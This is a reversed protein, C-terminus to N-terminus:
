ENARHMLYKAPRTPNGRYPEPMMPDPAIYEVSGNPSSYRFGGDTNSRAPPETDVPCAPKQESSTAPLIAECMRDVEEWVRVDVWYGTHSLIKPLPQGYMYQDTMPDVLPIDTQAAEWGGDVRIPGGIYDTLYHVNRWRIEGFGVSGQAISQLLGDSFLAPFAWRYLKGLPCGFTVLGVSKAAGEHRSSKRAVVAAAVVSGQSHATLVVRGGNDHLWWIRRTLEPVARETYSPPAFPHFSRPFFTGVDFPTMLIRRWKENRFALRAVVVYAAPLLAGITTGAEVWIMPMHDLVLVQYLFIAAEVLGVVTIVVM